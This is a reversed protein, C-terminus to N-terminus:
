YAATDSGAGDLIVGLVAAQVGDLRAKAERLATRTTRNATSVLVVGDVKSAMLTADAAPLVPSAVVIVAQARQSVTALLADLAKSGVLQAPVEHTGGAPLLALGPLPGPRLCEAYDHGGALCQLLGPAEAVDFLSHLRPRHLDADVLATDWGGEAFALALEAAILHREETATPSTVVISTAPKPALAHELRARLVRYAEARPSGPRSLLSLRATGNDAM